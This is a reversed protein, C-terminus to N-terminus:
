RRTHIKKEEARRLRENKTFKNEEEIIMKIVEEEVMDDESMSAM